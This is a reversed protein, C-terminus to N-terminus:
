IAVAGVAAIDLRLDSVNSTPAQSASAEEWAKRRSANFHGQWDGWTSWGGNDVLLSESSDTSSSSYRM